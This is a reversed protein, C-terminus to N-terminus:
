HHVQLWQEQPSGSSSHHLTGAIARYPDLMVSAGHCNRSRWKVRIYIYLNKSTSTDHHALFEAPSFCCLIWVAVARGSEAGRKGRMRKSSSLAASAEAVSHSLPSYRNMRPSSSTVKIDHLFRPSGFFFPLFTSSPPPSSPHHHHSQGGPLHMLPANTACVLQSVLWLSLSHIHTHIKFPYLPLTADTTFSSGAEQPIFIPFEDSQLQIKIDQQTHTHSLPLSKNWPTCNSCTELNIFSVLEESVQTWRCVGVVPNETNEASYPNSLILFRSVM